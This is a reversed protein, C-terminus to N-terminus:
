ISLGQTAFSEEIGTHPSSENHQTSTIPPTTCSDLRTQTDTEAITRLDSMPAGALALPSQRNVRLRFTHAVFGGDSKNTVGIAGRNLSFTATNPSGGSSPEVSACKNFFLRYGGLIGYDPCAGEQGGFTGVFHVSAEISIEPQIKNKQGFAPLSVFTSGCIAAVIANKLLM